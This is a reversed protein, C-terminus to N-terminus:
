CVLGLLYRVEESALRYLHRRGDGRVAVVGLVRLPRLCSSVTSVDRGTAAALQGVSMEGGGALALLLRLRTQDGLLRFLMAVRSLPLPTPAPDPM